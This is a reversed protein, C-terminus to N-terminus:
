ENARVRLLVLFDIDKQVSGPTKLFITAEGLLHVNRNRNNNNNTSFQDCSTYIYNIGDTFQLTCSCRGVQWSSGQLCNQLFRALPGRKMGSFLHPIIKRCLLIHLANHPSNSSKTTKSHLGLIIVKKQDFKLSAKKPPPNM